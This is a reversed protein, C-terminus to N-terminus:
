TLTWPRRLIANKPLRSERRAAARDRRTHVDGVVALFTFTQTRTAASRSSLQTPGGEPTGKPTVGENQASVMM